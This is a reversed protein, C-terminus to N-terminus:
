WPTEILWICIYFQMTTVFVYDASGTGMNDPEIRKMMQMFSIDSLLADETQINASVAKQIPVGCQDAM